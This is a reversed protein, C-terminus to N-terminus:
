AAAEGAPCRFRMTVAVGDDSSDFTAEEAVSRIVTLGLGLGSWEPHPRMGEGRDTVRIVLHSDQIWARVAVAGLRGQRYAHVVANTVAESVGLAVDSLDADCRKALEAVAHRLRPISKPEAPLELSVASEM